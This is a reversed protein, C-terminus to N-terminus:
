AGEYVVGGPRGPKGNWWSGGGAVVDVGDGGKAALYFFVYSVIYKLIIDIRIICLVLLLRWPHVTIIRIGWVMGSWQTRAGTHARRRSSHTHAGSPSSTLM